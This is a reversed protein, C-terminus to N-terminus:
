NAIGHAAAQSVQGNLPEASNVGCQNSAMHKASRQTVLQRSIARELPVKGRCLRRNEARARKL